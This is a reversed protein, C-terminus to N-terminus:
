GLEDPMKEMSGDQEVATAEEQGLSGFCKVAPVTYVM